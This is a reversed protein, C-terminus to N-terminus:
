AGAAALSQDIIKVAETLQQETIVLPPAMKIVNGYTGGVNTIMLGRSLAEDAVRQALRPDPQRTARDEIMEMGVM